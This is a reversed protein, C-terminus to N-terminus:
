TTPTSASPPPTRASPRREPRLPRHDVLHIRPARLRPGQQAAPIRRGRRRDQPRRGARRSRGRRLRHRGQRGAGAGTVRARVTTVEDPMPQPAPQGPVPRCRRAGHGEGGRPARRSRASAQRRGTRRAVAAVGDRVADTHRGRHAAGRRAATTGERLKYERTARRSRRPGAHPLRRPQRLGNDTQAVFAQAKLDKSEHKVEVRGADGKKDELGTRPARTSPRDRLHERGAERHRQRRGAQLAGRPNKDKM